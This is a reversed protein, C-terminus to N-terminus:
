AHLTGEAVVVAGGGIEAGQLKGNEIVIQLEIRSPRGMEVGQAVVFDHVGSGLGEHEALAGALCAVASGTAPDEAIGLGPGYMRARIGEAAAAYLYVAPHEGTVLRAFADSPWARALADLSALPILHFAGGVARVSPAHRGFGIDAPALGLAQAADQASLGHGAVHPLKPVRFRAYGAREGRRETVCPVVGVKEEVGFAAAGADGNMLSLLVATGVTPHGAFPLEAGPTFIRLKARRHPDDPPLIFVTESLNFEAAIAQMRADDLGMGDHVVALPNGALPADTFVDLITYRRSM